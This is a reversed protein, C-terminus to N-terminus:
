IVWFQVKRQAQPTVSLGGGGKKKTKTKNKNQKTQDPPPPNFKNRYATVRPSPPKNLPSQATVNGYIISMFVGAYDGFDCIEYCDNEKFCFYKMNTAM